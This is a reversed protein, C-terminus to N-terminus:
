TGVEQQYYADVAPNYTAGYISTFLMHGEYFFQGGTTVAGITSNASIAGANGWATSLGAVGNRYVRSASGSTEFALRSLDTTATFGSNRDSGDYFGYQGSSVRGVVRRGTDTDFMVHYVNSVSTAKQAVYNTKPGSPATLTVLRFFDGGDFLLSSKGGTSSITPRSGAASQTAHYGHGSVDPWTSCTIGGDVSVTNRADFAAILDTTPLTLLPPAAPLAAAMMARALGNM